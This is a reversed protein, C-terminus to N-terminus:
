ILSTQVKLNVEEASGHCMMKRNTRIAELQRWSDVILFLGTENNLAMHVNNIYTASQTTTSHQTICRSKSIYSDKLLGHIEREGEIPESSPSPM